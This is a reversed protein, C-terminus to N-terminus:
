MNIETEHKLVPCKGRRAVSPGILNLSSGKLPRMLQWAQPVLGKSPSMLLHLSIARWFSFICLIQLPLSQLFPTLILPEKILKRTSLMARSKKASSHQLPGKQIQKYLLVLIRFPLSKMRELSFEFHGNGRCM